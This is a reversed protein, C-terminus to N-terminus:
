RNEFYVLQRDQHLNVLFYDYIYISFRVNYLFDDKVNRM